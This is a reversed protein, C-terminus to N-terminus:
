EVGQGSYMVSHLSTAPTIPDGVFAAVFTAYAIPHNDDEAPAYVGFFELITSTPELGSGTRGTCKAAIDWLLAAFGQEYLEFRAFGGVRDVAFRSHRLNGPNNNRYSRSEPFWGEFKQIALAMRYVHPHHKAMYLIYTYSQDNM